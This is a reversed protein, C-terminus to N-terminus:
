VISGSITCLVLEMLKWFSSFPPNLKGHGTEAGFNVQTSYTVPIRNLTQITPHIHSFPYSTFTHLIVAAPITMRIKKHPILKYLLFPFILLGELM